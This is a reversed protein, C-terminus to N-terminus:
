RPEGSFIRAILKRFRPDSRLPDLRYDVDFVTYESVSDTQSSTPEVAAPSRIDMPMACWM